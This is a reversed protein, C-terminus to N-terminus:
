PAAPEPDLLGQDLLYRAFERAAAESPHWTDRPSDPAPIGRALMEELPPLLDIHRLGLDRFMALADDRSVREAESWQAYPKLIPLEIMTLRVRQAALEDRLRALHGRMERVSERYRPTPRERELRWSRAILKRALHSRSALPFPMHRVDVGGPNVFEVRGDPHFAAVPHPAFDNNHFTFIVHDPEIARNYKEYFLVVQVGSYSEVGANWYEFAADGRQARLAEMIRGRATVSDGIFLLRTRGPTRALPYANSVTGWPTYGRPEYGLDPAYAYASAHDLDERNWYHPHLRAYREMWAWAAALPLGVLLIRFVVRKM